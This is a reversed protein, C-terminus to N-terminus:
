GVQITQVCDVDCRGCLKAPHRTTICGIVLGAAGILAIFSTTDVGLKNLAVIVIFLMLVASVISDAFNVLMEDVYLM